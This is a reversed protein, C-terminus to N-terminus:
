FEKIMKEESPMKMSTGDALKVDKFRTPYQLFYKGQNSTKFIVSSELTFRSGDEFEFSMTNEVMGNNIRTNLIKHTKPENKKQLILALKSVNKSIFGGVIDEVTDDILRQIIKDPDPKLELVTQGAIRRTMFIISAVNMEVGTKPLKKPDTVDKIKNYASKTSDTIDKKLNKKFSDAADTMFKEALKKADQNAMPKIFEGPKPERIPKGSKVYTKITKMAAPIDSISDMFKSGAENKPVMKSYIKAVKNIDSVSYISWLDSTDVGNKILDDKITDFLKKYSYEIGYSIASKWDNLRANYIEKNEAAAALADIAEEFREKQKGSLWQSIQKAKSFAESSERNERIYTKFKMM